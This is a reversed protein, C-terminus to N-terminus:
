FQDIVLLSSSYTKCGVVQRVPQRRELPSQLSLSNWEFLTSLAGKRFVIKGELARENTRLSFEQSAAYSSEKKEM